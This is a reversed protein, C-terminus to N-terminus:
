RLAEIAEVIDETEPGMVVQVSDGVTVVNFAGAERLADDDVVSDDNVDLRIRTICAEITKINEWGGLAALISEAQSM